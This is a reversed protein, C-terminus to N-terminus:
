FCVCRLSCNNMSMLRSAYVGLLAITWQCQLACLPYFILGHKFSFCTLTMNTKTMWSNLPCTGGFYIVLNLAKRQFMSKLPGCIWIEPTLLNSPNLKDFIFAGYFNWNVPAVAACAQSPHLYPQVHTPQHLFFLMYSCNIEVM